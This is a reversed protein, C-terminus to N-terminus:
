TNSLLFEKLDIQRNPMGGDVYRGVINMGREMFRAVPQVKPSENDTWRTMGM